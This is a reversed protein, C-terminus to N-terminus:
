AWFKSGPEHFGWPSGAVALSFTSCRLSTDLQEQCEPGIDSRSGGNCCVPRVSRLYWGVIPIKDVGYKGQFQFLRSFCTTLSRGTERFGPDEVWLRKCWGATSRLLCEHRRVAARSKAFYHTEDTRHFPIDLSFVEGGVPATPNRQRGAGTRHLATTRASAKFKVNM